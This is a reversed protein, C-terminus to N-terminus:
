PGCAPYVRIPRLVTDVCRVGGALNRRMLRISLTNSRGSGMHLESGAGRFGHEGPWMAVIVCVTVAERLKNLAANLSGDFDVLTDM